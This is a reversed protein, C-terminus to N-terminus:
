LYFFFLSFFGDWRDGESAVILGRGKQGPFNYLGPVYGKERQKIIEQYPKQHDEFAKQHIRFAALSSVGDSKLAVSSVFPLNETSKLNPTIM